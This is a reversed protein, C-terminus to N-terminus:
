LVLNLPRILPVVDGDHLLEQTLHNYIYIEDGLNIFIMKMDKFILSIGTQTSQYVIKQIARLPEGIAQKVSTMENLKIKKLIGFEDMDLDKCKKNIFTDVGMALQDGRINLINKDFHLEYEIIDSDDFVSFDGNSLEFYILGYIDIFIQNMFININNM